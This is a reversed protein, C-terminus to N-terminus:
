PGWLYAESASASVQHQEWLITMPQDLALRELQELAWLGTLLTGTMEVQTIRFVVGTM